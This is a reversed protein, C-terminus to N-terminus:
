NYLKGDSNEPKFSIEIDFNTYADKIKPFNMYSLPSQSFYPVM